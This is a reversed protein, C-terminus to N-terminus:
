CFIGRSTSVPPWYGLLQGLLTVAERGYRSYIHTAPKSMPARHEWFLARFPEVPENMFGKLLVGAPRLLDSCFHKMSPDRLAKGIRQHFLPQARGWLGPAGPRTTREDMTALALANHYSRM